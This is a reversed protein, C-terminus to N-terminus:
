FRTMCWPQPSSAFMLDARQLAGPTEERLRQARALMTFPVGGLFLTALDATELTIDPSRSTRRCAAGDTAGELLFRGGCAPRFGDRVELVLSGEIAYRRAGLAAPVDLMRVWLGDTRHRTRLQRPDKLLYRLLEDVPSNWTTLKRVLDVDLLYRWLAVRADDTTTILQSVELTFDNIGDTWDSKLGYIAFGECSGSNDRAVVHYQSREGIREALPTEFYRQWWYANRAIAGPTQRRATECVEPYLGRADAFDICEVSGSYAVPGLFASGATSIAYGAQDAASGFGFRGYISSESATLVAMPEGREQCDALAHAVMARLIGRRRHAPSVTAAKIAGAPVSTSGPLSVLTAEVVVTGVLGAGAFAGLSRDFEFGPLQRAVEEDSPISGFAAGVQQWFAPLENPTIPRLNYPFSM